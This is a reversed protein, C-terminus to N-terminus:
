PFFMTLMVLLVVWLVFCSFVFLYVGSWSRLVPLGTDRPDSDVPKPTAGSSSATKDDPTKM